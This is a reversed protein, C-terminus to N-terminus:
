VILATRRYHVKADEVTPFLEWDMGACVKGYNSLWTNEIMSSIDQMIASPMAISKHLIRQVYWHFLTFKDSM